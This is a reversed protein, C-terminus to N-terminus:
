AGLPHDVGPISPMIETVSPITQNQSQLAQIQAELQTIKISSASPGTFLQTLVLSILSLITTIIPTSTGYDIKLFVETILTIIIGILGHVVIAKITQKDQYNLTFRPSNNM